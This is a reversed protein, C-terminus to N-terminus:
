KMLPVINLFLIENDIQKNLSMQYPTEKQRSDDARQLFHINM